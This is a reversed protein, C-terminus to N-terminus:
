QVYFEIYTEGDETSLDVVQVHSTNIMRLLNDNLSSERALLVTAQFARGTQKTDIIKVGSSESICREFNRARTKDFSTLGPILDRLAM